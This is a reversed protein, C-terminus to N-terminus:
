LRSNFIANVPRTFCISRGPGHGRIRSKSDAAAAERAARREKRREALLVVQDPHEARMHDSHTAYLKLNELRNDARDGNIHHVREARTLPRGLHKEMVLRHELIFRRNGTSWDIVRVYGKAGFYRVDSGRKRPIEQLGAMRCTDSCFKHFGYELRAVKVQIEKGCHQCAVWTYGFGLGMRRKISCERSCTVYPRASKAPVLFQDGCCICAKIVKTYGGDRMSPPTRDKM